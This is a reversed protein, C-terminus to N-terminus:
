FLKALGGLLKDGRKSLLFYLATVTFLLVILIIIKVLFNM